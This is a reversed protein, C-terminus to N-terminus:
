IQPDRHSVDRALEKSRRTHYCRGGIGNRNDDDNTMRLFGASATIIRLQRNGTLFARLRERTNQFVRLDRGYENGLELARLLSRRRRRARRVKSGRHNRCTISGASTAFNRASLPFESTTPWPLVIGSKIFARPIAVGIVM